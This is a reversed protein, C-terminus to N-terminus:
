RDRSGNQRTKLKPTDIRTSVGNVGSVTLPVSFLYTYVTSAEYILVISM